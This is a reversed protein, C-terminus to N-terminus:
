RNAIAQIIEESTRIATNDETIKVGLLDNTEQVFAELEVISVKAKNNRSVSYMFLSLLAALILIVTNKKFM